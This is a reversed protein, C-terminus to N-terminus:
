LMIELKKSPIGKLETLNVHGLLYNESTENGHLWVNSSSEKICNETFTLYRSYWPFKWTYM